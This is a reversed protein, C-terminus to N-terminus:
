TSGATSSSRACLRTSSSGARETTCTSRRQAGTCALAAVGPGEAGDHDQAAVQLRRLERGLRLPRRGVRTPAQVSEVDALAPVREERSRAADDRRACRRGARRRAACRPRAHPARGHPARRPPVAFDRPHRRRAPPRERRLPAHGALRRRRRPVRRRRGPSAVGGRARGRGHLRLGRAVAVRAHGSPLVPQVAAQGRLLGPLREVLAVRRAVSPAAARAGGPRDGRAHRDRAARAAALVPTRAGAGRRHPPALVRPGRRTQPDELRLWSQMLVVGPVLAILAPRWDLM